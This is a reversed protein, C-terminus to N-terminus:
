ARPKVNKRFGGHEYKQTIYYQQSVSLINNVVWYLVLGAPFWLFLVTMVVPLFMMMKAQAPDPPQPSLKQQIFMTVGMIIPLIFYPDKTSLDHIWLIWPAQRLEVSELLVWYLAIFVPIQIVIPLCGGLPNVKEKKYLEMMAKSMGQKDSKFREKLQAMKPQLKRMAAMSKYSSASLHYFVAKILITLIIISWGWNGVFQDIFKLAKFLLISIFWLLGFDITHSLYPAINNLTEEIKPGIYLSSNFQTSAGPTLNMKASVMGASVYGDATVRSYYRYTQDQAPIWAGLFYHQDSALWGGKAEQDIATKQLKSFSYQQYRNEPSFLSFGFFSHVGFGEEVPAKDARTIQMFYNGQWAKNSENTIKYLVSIDYSGKKFTYTKELNIGEKTKATLVVTSEKQDAGLTYNLQQAKYLTDQQLPVPADDKILGNQVIYLTEPNSNLLTVPEKGHLEKSYKELTASIINGGNPSIEINMVDTSVHILNNTKVENLITKGVFNSANTENQVASSQQNNYQNDTNVIAQQKNKQPPNDVQWANWLSVLIIFLIAYLGYKIKEMKM